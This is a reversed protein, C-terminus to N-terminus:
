DHDVGLIAGIAKKMDQIEVNTHHNIKKDKLNKLNRPITIGTKQECDLMMDFEDGDSHSISNFVTDMFKYPSATACIMTKSSNIKERKFDQVAKYAVATHPDLLYGTQEYVEKIISKTQEQTTYSAYFDHHLRNKLIEPMEYSGKEQLSHMMNCVREDDECYLYLLRELNSSIIIDMSPSNTKKFKRNANYIGYHIFDTLVNNENSACILKEIPLGMQKAMYAALINGFNGTPVAVNIREYLQISGRKVLDCYGKIYYVIQPILRGINISNASSFQQHNARMKEQLSVDKFCDKVMRQCDDFNGNVGIVYCNKGETTLMQHKQVESVGDKPYFVIIKIHDVDKFGELAAKGTDGSTATLIVIEDQAQEHNLSAKMLHPLLQLAIDKFASTPGHFLELIYDDKVRVIPTIEDSSFKNAYAQHVCEDIEDKSWEDFFVALIYAALQEYSKNVCEHINIQAQKLDEPIFLGLDKSLGKLIAYSASVYQNSDRTSTYKM